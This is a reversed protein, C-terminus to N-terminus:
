AIEVQEKQTTVKAKVKNMFGTLSGRASSPDKPKFINNM